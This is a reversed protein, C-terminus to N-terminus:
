RSSLLIHGKRGGVIDLWGSTDKLSLVRQRGGRRAGLGGGTGTGLCDVGQSSAINTHGRCKMHISDPTSSAIVLVDIIPCAHTDKLLSDSSREKQKVDKKEKRRIDTDIQTDSPPTSSKLYPYGTCVLLLETSTLAFLQGSRWSFSVMSSFSLSSLPNVYAHLDVSAYVSLNFTRMNQTDPHNLPPGPTAHPTIELRLITVTLGVLVACLGSSPEWTVSRVATFTPGVAQLSLSPALSSGSESPPSQTSTLAYFRSTQTARFYEGGGGPSEEWSVASAAVISEVSATSSKNKKSLIGKDKEKGMMEKKMESQQQAIADAEIKSIAKQGGTLNDAKERPSTICLIPGSHLEQPLARYVSSSPTSTPTNSLASVDVLMDIAGGATEGSGSSPLVKFVMEPPTYQGMEKETKSFISKKQVTSEGRYGPTLVAYTKGNGIWAFSICRGRDVEIFSEEMMSDSIGESKNAIGMDLDEDETISLLSMKAAGIRGSGMRSSSTSDASPCRRIKNKNLKVHYVAYFSSESWFLACHTGCISPYFLPRCTAINIPTQPLTSASPIVPVVPYFDGDSEALGLQSGSGRKTSSHSTVTGVTGGTSGNLHLEKKNGFGLMMGSLSRKRQLDERGLSSKTSVDTTLSGRFFPANHSIGNDGGTVLYEDTVDVEVLATGNFSYRDSEVTVKGEKDREGQRDGEKGKEREKEKERLDVSDMDNQQSGSQSNSLNTSEFVVDLM